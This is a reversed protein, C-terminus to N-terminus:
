LTSLPEQASAVSEPGDVPAVVDSEIYILRLKSMQLVDGDEFAVIVQDHDKLFVKGMLYKSDQGPQRFRVRVLSKEEDTTTWTKALCSQCFPTHSSIACALCPMSLGFSPYLYAHTSPITTRTNDSIVEIQGNAKAHWVLGLCFM